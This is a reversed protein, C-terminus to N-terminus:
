ILEPSGKEKVLIELHGGSKTKIAEPKLSYVRNYKKKERLPGPCRVWELNGLLAGISLSVVRCTM